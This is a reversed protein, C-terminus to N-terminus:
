KKKAKKTTPKKLVAPKKAVPKKVIEAPQSDVNSEVKSGAMIDVLRNISATLKDLKANITEFEHKHDGGNNRYDPSKVFSPRGFEKRPSRESRDGGAQNARFCNSCYVPKDGTPRFPVECSEGCTACTAKHLTVPGRDQRDRGGGGGFSPRGFSRNGGSKFGGGRSGGRQKFDRM